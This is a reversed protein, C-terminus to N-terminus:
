EENVTGVSLVADVRATRSVELEIGTQKSKKFGTASVEVEYKGVPLLDIRYTGEVNTTVTHTAGTGINSVTVQANPIAGGSADSVTGSITTTTIQAQLALAAFVCVALRFLQKQM